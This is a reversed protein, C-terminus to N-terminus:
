SRFTYYKGVLVRRELLKLCNHRMPVALETSKFLTSFIAKLKPGKYGPLVHEFNNKLHLLHSLLSAAGTLSKGQFAEVSLLGAAAAATFLIRREGLTAAAARGNEPDGNM